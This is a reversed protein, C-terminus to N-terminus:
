RGPFGEFEEGQVASPDGQPLDSPEFYFDVTGGGLMVPAAKVKEAYDQGECYVVYQAPRLRGVKFFGDRATKTRFVEREEDPTLGRIKVGPVSARDPSSRLTVWLRGNIESQTMMIYLPTLVILLGGLIRATEKAGEPGRFTALLWAAVASLAFGSLLNTWIAKDTPPTKYFLLAMLVAFLTLAAGPIAGQLIGATEREPKACMAAVVAPVLTAAVRLDM